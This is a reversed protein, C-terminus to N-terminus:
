FSSLLQTPVLVSQWEIWLLRPRRTLMSNWWDVFIIAVVVVVVADAIRFAGVTSTEEMSFSMVMTVSHIAESM